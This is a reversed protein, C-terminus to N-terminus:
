KFIKKGYFVLFVVLGILILPIFNAGMNGLSGLLPTTARPTAQTGTSAKSSESSPILKSIAGTFLGSLSTLFNSINPSTVVNVGASGAPIIPQGQTIGEEGFAAVIPDVSSAIFDPDSSFDLAINDLSDLNGFIAGQSEGGDFLGM